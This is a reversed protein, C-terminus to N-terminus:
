RLDPVYRATRLTVLTRRDPGSRRRASVVVVRLAQEATVERRLLFRGQTLSDTGPPAAAPTTELYAEAAALAEAYQRGQRDLALHVAFAGLPVLVVSLLVVAV